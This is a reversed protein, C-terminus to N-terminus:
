NDDLDFDGLTYLSFVPKIFDESEKRRDVIVVVGVVDIGLEELDAVLATKSAGSTIVDDVLIAKQGKRYIGEINKKTGYDKPEKRKYIFWRFIM